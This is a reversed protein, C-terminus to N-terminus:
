WRIVSPKSKSYSARGKRELKKPCGSSQHHPLTPYLHHISDASCRRTLFITCM